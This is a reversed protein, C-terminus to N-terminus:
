NGNNRVLCKLRERKVSKQTQQWVSRYMKVVVIGIFISNDDVVFLTRTRSLKEFLIKWRNRFKVAETIEHRKVDTIPKGHPPCRFIKEEDGVASGKRSRASINEMLRWCHFRATVTVVRVKRRGTKFLITEEEM